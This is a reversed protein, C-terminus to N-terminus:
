LAVQPFAPPSFVPLGTPFTNRALRKGTPLQPLPYRFQSAHIESLPPEDAGSEWLSPTQKDVTPKRYIHF